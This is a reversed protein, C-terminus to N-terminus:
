DVEVGCYAALRLWSLLNKVETAYELSRLYPRFLKFPNSPFFAICFLLFFRASSETTVRKRSSDRKPSLATLNHTMQGRLPVSTRFATLASLFGAHSDPPTAYAVLHFSGPVQYWTPSVCLTDSVPLYYLIRSTEVTVVASCRLYIMYLYIM